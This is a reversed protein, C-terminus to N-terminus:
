RIRTLRWVIWAGVAAFLLFLLGFASQIGIAPSSFIPSTPHLVRPAQLTIVAVIAPIMAFILGRLRSNALWSNVVLLIASIALSNVAALMRPERWFIGGWNVHSAILSVVIGGTFFLLAVWGLTQALDQLAKRKASIALILGLIGMLFLGGMGTWTLAVHVYVTQIGSGLIAEDPALYLVLPIATALGALGLWPLPHRRLEQILQTSM